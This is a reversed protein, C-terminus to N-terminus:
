KKILSLLTEFLKAASEPKALLRLVGGGAGVVVFMLLLWLLPRHAVDVVYGCVLGLLFAGQAQRPDERWSPVTLNGGTAFAGAGLVAASLRELHPALGEGLERLM